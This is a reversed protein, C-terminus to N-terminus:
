RRCWEGDPQGPVVVGLRLGVRDPTIIAAALVLRANSRTKM